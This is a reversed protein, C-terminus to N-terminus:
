IGSRGPGLFLILSLFFLALVCITGAVVTLAGRRSLGLGRVLGTYVLWWKWPETFWFSFPVWSVVLTTGASLAFIDLVEAFAAKRGATMVMAMHGIGAAMATMGLANALYIAGAWLAGTGAGMASAATSFLASFLLYRLARPRVASLREPDFAERPRCLLATLMAPYGSRPAADPRPVTAPAMVVGATRVVVGLALMALTLYFFLRREAGATFYIRSGDHRLVPRSGKPPRKETSCM